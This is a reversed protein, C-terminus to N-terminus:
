SVRMAVIKKLVKTPVLNEAKPTTLGKTASWNSNEIKAVFKSQIFVRIKMQKKYELLHLNLTTVNQLLIQM